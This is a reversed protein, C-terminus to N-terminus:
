DTGFVAADVWAPVGDPSLSPRKLTRSTGFVSGKWTILSNKLTGPACGHFHATM